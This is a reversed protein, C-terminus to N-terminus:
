VLKLVVKGKPSQNELQQLAASAQELPFTKDVHVKLAGDDVLEAVKTLRETTVQTFQSLAEVGFEKMLDLHPPEVMSVLRGGRKLVKFSRVYTEGGVTDLVADLGGVVDEFKQTKYDVVTDAGLSKVYDIENGTATAAVHARLYKALQIAGSGIGGAGGHILVKQGATLQLHETLAQLASVGVLPLGGAETHDLNRPKVAVNTAQAITYEAFSGSGGFLLSSQGYVEDGVKFAKVDPGLVEVVGSFDGGMTTPLKLRPLYGARIKWDIPNVGAAHVSILVEGTKPEFLFVDEVHVAEAGRYAQLRVSKVSKM